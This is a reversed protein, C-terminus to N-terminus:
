RIREITLGLEAAAECQPVDASVFLDCGSDLAVALHIADLTRLAMKELVEIARALVTSTVQVVTAQAMDGALEKKAAVYEDSTLRGERRLRNLASLTEPVCLVSVVVETAQSCLELVRATGREVVYRKALASTDFAIRM